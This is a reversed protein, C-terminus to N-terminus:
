VRVGIGRLIEEHQARALSDRQRQREHFTSRDQGDYSSPQYEDDIRARAAFYPDHFRSAHNSSGNRVRPSFDGDFDRAREQNLERGVESRTMRRIRPVDEDQFIKPRHGSLTDSRSLRRSRYHSPLTDLRDPQYKRASTNLREVEFALREHDKHGALYAERVQTLPDVSPRRPSLGPVKIKRDSGTQIYAKDRTVSHRRTVPPRADHVFGDTDVIFHASAGGSPKRPKTPVAKTMRPSGSSSSPLSSCNTSISSRDSGSDSFSHVDSSSDSSSSSHRPHHRKHKPYKKRDPIVTISPGENKSPRRKPQRNAGSGHAGQQQQHPATQTFSQPPRQQEQQPAM